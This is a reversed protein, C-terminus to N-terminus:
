IRGAVVKIIEKYREDSIPIEKDAAFGQRELAALLTKVSGQDGTTKIQEIISAAILAAQNGDHSMLVLIEDLPKGHFQELYGPPMNEVLAQASVPTTKKPTAM